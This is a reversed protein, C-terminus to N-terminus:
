IASHVRLRKLISELLHVNSRLIITRSLCQSVDCCQTCRANQQTRRRRKEREERKQNRLRSAASLTLALAAGVWVIFLSFTAATHWAGSSHGGALFRDAYKKDSVRTSTVLYNWNGFCFFVSNEAVITRRSFERFHYLSYKSSLSPHFHLLELVRLRGFSVRGASSMNEFVCLFFLVTHREDIPLKSRLTLMRRHNNIASTKPRTENVTTM